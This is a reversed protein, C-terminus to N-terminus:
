NNVIYVPRFSVHAHESEMANYVLPLVDPHTVQSDCRTFEIFGRKRERFVSKETKSQLMQLNDLLTIMNQPPEKIVFLPKLSPLVMSAFQTPTLMQSIAFVNPLIYPLLHTDKMEELLSPLIKRTRLGESFKDLVSVLGKMFSIKEERSKTAFNSRELFNLTSIPLSSFFALSPLTSPDPRNGYHRTVLSNLLAILSTLSPVFRLLFDNCRLDQDLREMGQLPKGANERLGGLSGHNKFPPNGKCHVAYILCGLSYM